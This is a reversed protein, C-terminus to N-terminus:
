SAGGFRKLTGGLQRFNLISNTSEQPQSSVVDLTEEKQGSYMSHIKRLGKKFEAHKMTDRQLKVCNPNNNVTNYFNSLSAFPAGPYPKSDQTFNKFIMHMLIFLHKKILFENITKVDREFSRLDKEGERSIEKGEKLLDQEITYLQFM